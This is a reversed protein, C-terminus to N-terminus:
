GRHRKVEFRYLALPEGDFIGAKRMAIAVQDDVTDVGDLDPLLLGRKFGSEVIVGYRKPDLEIFSTIAEPHSLVDVSYQLHKLEEESVPEFRPDGVAANIANQIIEAALNPQTPGITGICGRLQGHKKLSVFAGAQTELEPPVPVPTSTTRGFRIYEEVAEKALAVLPDSLTGKVM